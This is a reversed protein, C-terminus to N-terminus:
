FVVSFNERFRLTLENFKDPYTTAMGYLPTVTQNVSRTNKKALKSGM